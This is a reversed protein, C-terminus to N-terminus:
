SSTKTGSSALVARLGDVTAHDLARVLRPVLVELQRVLEGVRAANADAARDELESAIGSVNTSCMAIMGCFSHAAERLEVFRGAAELERLHRVDDELRPVLGAQLSALIADDEEEVDGGDFLGM